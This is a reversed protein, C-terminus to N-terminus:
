DFKIDFSSKRKNELFKLIPNFIDNKDSSYKHSRKKPNYLLSKFSKIIKENDDSDTDDTTKVKYENCKLSVYEEDAYNENEDLDMRCNNENNDATIKEKVKLLCKKSNFKKKYQSSKTNKNNNEEIKQYKKLKKNLNLILNEKKELNITNNIKIIKKRM